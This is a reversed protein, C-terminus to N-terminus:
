DDRLDDWAPLGFYTPLNHWVQRRSTEIRHRFRCRGADNETAWEITITMSLAEYGLLLGERAQTWLQVTTGDDRRKAQFVGTLKYRQLFAYYAVPLLSKIGLELLLNIVDLINFTGNRIPNEYKENWLDLTVPLEKKLRNMGEAQLHDIEYKKGLRLMSKLLSFSIDDTSKYAKVNDYLIEFVNKWDEADDSVHVIACGDITPEDQPQPVNFMDGFVSSNRSLVSKHVRFQVKAAQLIISGDDFWITSRTIAVLESGGHTRKRKAMPVSLTSETM